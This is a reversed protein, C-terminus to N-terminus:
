DKDLGQCMKEFENYYHWSAVIDPRKAKIDVLEFDLNKKYFARTEKHKALYNLIEKEDIRKANEKVIAEKLAKVYGKLYKKSTLYLRSNDKLRTIEDKNAFYVGFDKLGVDEDFFIENANIWGMPANQLNGLWAKISDAKKLSAEDQRSDGLEFCKDIDDSHLFLLKQMGLYDGGNIKGEFKARDQTKPPTFGLKLALKTMTEFAKAPMIEQMDLFLLESHNKLAKIRSSLSFLIGSHWGCDSTELNEVIPSSERLNGKQYYYVRLVNEYDFTLNFHRISGGRLHNVLPKFRSIPDRLVSVVPVTADILSYFKANNPVTLNFGDLYIMNCLNKNANKLSNFLQIYSNKADSQEWRRHVIVGCHKYFVQMAGYAAGFHPIHIFKYNPPLPLNLEWAMEASINSYNLPSNKDNLTDSNLPPSYPHKTDLYKEKFEKSNLWLERQKDFEKCLVKSDKFKKLSEQLFERRQKRKEQWKQLKIANSTLKYFPIKFLWAGFYYRKYAKILTFFAKYYSKKLKKM